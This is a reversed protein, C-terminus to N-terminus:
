QSGGLNKNRESEKLDRRLEEVYDVIEVRALCRTVTRVHVNHAEAIERLPQHLSKRAIEYREAESLRWSRNRMIHEEM